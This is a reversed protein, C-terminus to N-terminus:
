GRAARLSLASGHRGARAAPRPRGGADLVVHVAPRECRARRGGDVRRQGAHGPLGEHLGVDRQHSRDVHELCQGQHRRDQVHRWRARVRSLPQQRFQASSGRHRHLPDHRQRRGRVEPVPQLRGQRLALARRVDLHQGRRGFVHLQPRPPIRSHLQLHPREAHPVPQRLHLQEGARARRRWTNRRDDGAGVRASQPAGLDPLVDPARQHAQQLRGPLPRGQPRSVGPWRSRGTRSASAPRHERGQRHRPRLRLDRRQGMESRHHEGSQQRDRPRIRRDAQWRERDGASGHVVVVRRQREAAGADRRRLQLSIGDQTTATVAGLCLLALVAFLRKM